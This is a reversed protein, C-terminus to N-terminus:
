KEEDERGKVIAYGTYRIIKVPSFSVTHDLPAQVPYSTQNTPDNLAQALKRSYWKEEWCGHSRVTYQLNCDVASCDWTIECHNCCHNHTIM